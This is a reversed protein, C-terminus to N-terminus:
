KNRDKIFKALRFPQKMENYFQRALELTAFSEVISENEINSMFDMVNIENEMKVNTSVICVNNNSEDLGISVLMTGNSESEITVAEVLINENDVAWKEIDIKIM